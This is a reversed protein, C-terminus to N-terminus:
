WRDRDRPRDDRREGADGIFACSHTLRSLGVLGSDNKQKKPKNFFHFNKVKVRKNGKETCRTKKLLIHIKTQNQSPKLNNSSLKIM